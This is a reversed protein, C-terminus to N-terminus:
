ITPNVENNCDMLKIKKFSNSTGTYSVDLSVSRALKMDDQQAKQRDCNTEQSSKDIDPNLKVVDSM